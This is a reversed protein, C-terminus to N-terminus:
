VPCHRGIWTKTDRSRWWAHGGDESHGRTQERRTPLFCFIVSVMGGTTPRLSVTKEAAMLSEGDASFRRLWTTPFDFSSSEAPRSEPEMAM